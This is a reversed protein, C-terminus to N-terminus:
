FILLNCLCHTVALIICAFALVVRSDAICQKVLLASCDALNRWKLQIFKYYIDTTSVEEWSDWIYPKATFDKMLMVLFVFKTIIM